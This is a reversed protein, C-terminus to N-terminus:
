RRQDLEEAIVVLRKEMLELEHQLVQLGSRGDPTIPGGKLEAPLAQYGGLAEPLYRDRTQEVLYRDKSGPLFESARDLLAAVLSQIRKVTARTAEPLESEVREDPLMALQKVEPRRAVDTRLLFTFPLVPLGTEFCNQFLCAEPPLRVVEVDLPEWSHVLTVHSSGVRALGVALARNIALALPSGSSDWRKGRQM